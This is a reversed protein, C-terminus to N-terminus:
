TVDWYTGDFLLRRAEGAPIVISSVLSTNYITTSGDAVNVTLGGSGRNKIEIITGTLAPTGTPLSWTGTTGSFVYFGGRTITLTSETSVEVTNYFGSCCCVKSKLYKIDALINEIDNSRFLSM